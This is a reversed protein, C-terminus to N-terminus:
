SLAGKRMRELSVKLVDMRASGEMEADIEELLRVSCARQCVSQQTADLLRKSALALDEHVVQLRALKRVLNVGMPVCVLCEFAISACKIKSLGLEDRRWYMLVLAAIVNCYVYAIAVAALYEWLSTFLGLPLVVLLGLAAGSVFMGM